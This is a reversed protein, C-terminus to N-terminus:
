VSKNIMSLLEMSDLRAEVDPCETKTDSDCLSMLVAFLNCLNDEKNEYACKYSLGMSKEWTSHLQWSPQTDKMQDSEQIDPMDDLRIWKQISYKRVTGVKWYDQCLVCTRRERCLFRRGQVYWRWYLQDAEQVKIKRFGNNKEGLAQAGETRADTHEKM